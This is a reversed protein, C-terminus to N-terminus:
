RCKSKERFSGNSRIAVVVVYQPRSMWYVCHSPSSQPVAIEPITYPLQQSVRTADFGCRALLAELEDGCGQVDGVAYTAM